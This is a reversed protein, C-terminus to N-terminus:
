PRWSAGYADRLPVQVTGGDVPLFGTATRQLGGAYVDVALWKGDPSWAVGSVGAEYTWDLSLDWRPVIRRSGSGDVRVIQVGSGDVYAIGLGDPSWAIRGYLWGVALPTTLQRQGTGDANMMWVALCCDDGSVRVFAIKQGDPSWTPSRAQGEVVVSADDGDADIIQLTSFYHGEDSVALRTGDPSWAVSGFVGNQTRQVLNSGDADMLWVNGRRQTEAADRIFAIRRGDPSWVPGWNQGTRTLRTFGSGDSRARYIQGDSERALVLELPNACSGPIPDSCVFSEAMMVAEVAGSFIRVQQPGVTPGLTWPGSRAVGLADSVATAGAISGEGPTVIFEVTAGSVPNGFRDHVKAGLPQSLTSGARGLQGFGEWPSIFKVPGAGANATFVVAPVSGVRVTMTDVGARTGLRWGITVRGYRDTPPTPFSERTGGTLQVTLTIGALPLGASDTVQVIPSPEVEVGVTGDLSTPSVAALSAPTPVAPPRDKPEVTNTCAALLLSAAAGVLHHSRRLLERWELSVSVRKSITM